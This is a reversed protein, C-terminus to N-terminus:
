SYAHLYITHFIEKLDLRLIDGMVEALEKKIPQLETMHDSM